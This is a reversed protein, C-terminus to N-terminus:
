SNPFVRSQLVRAKASMERFATRDPVVLWLVVPSVDIKPPPASTGEALLTTIASYITFCHYHMVCPDASRERSFEICSQTVSPRNRFSVCPLGFSPSRYSSDAPFIRRLHLSLHSSTGNEDISLLLLYCSLWPLPVSLGSPPALNDFAVAPTLKCSLRSRRSSTVEHVPVMTERGRCSVRPGSSRSCRYSPHTRVAVGIRGPPLRLLALTGFARRHMSPLLPGAAADGTEPRRKRGTGEESVFTVPFPSRIHPELAPQCRM